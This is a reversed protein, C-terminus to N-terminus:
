NLSGPVALSFLAVPADFQEGDERQMLYSGQMCGVPTKLICFSNYFHECGPEIVPQEGIVGEGRVEEVQGSADM